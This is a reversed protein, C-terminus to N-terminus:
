GRYCSLTKKILTPQVSHISIYFEADVVKADRFHWCEKIGMPNHGNYFDDSCDQCMAKIPKLSKYIRITKGYGVVM